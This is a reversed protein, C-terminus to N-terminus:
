SSPRGSGISGVACCCRISWSGTSVNCNRIPLRYQSTSKNVSMAQFSKEPALGPQRPHLRDAVPHMAVDGEAILEGAGGLGRHVNVLFPFADAAIEHM